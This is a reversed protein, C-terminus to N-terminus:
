VILRRRQVDMALCLRKQVSVAIRQFANPLGPRIWESMRMRQRPSDIAAMTTRLRNASNRELQTTQANSAQTTVRSTTHQGTDHSATTATSM